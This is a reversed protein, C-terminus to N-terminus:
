AESVVVLCVGIKDRFYGFKKLVLPRAFHDSAMESTSCYQVRVEHLAVKESLWHNKTNIHRSRQTMAENEALHQVPTPCRSQMGDTSDQGSSIRLRRIINLGFESVCRSM